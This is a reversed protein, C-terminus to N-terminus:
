FTASLRVFFDTYISGYNIRGRYFNAYYARGLDDQSSSWSYTSLGYNGYTSSTIGLEGAFASWEARSPVFWGRKVEETIKGWLDSSSASTSSSWSELVAKTNEYGTGFNESTSASTVYNADWTYGTGNKTGDIDTLAMVYFRNVETTRDLPTLVPATGYTGTYSAQSIYYDKLTSTDEVKTVTYTGYSNGGWYESSSTKGVATDAYTFGDVTGDSDTDVYYGIYAETKSITEIDGAGLTYPNAETGDGGTIIVNSNLHFVPRFGNTRVDGYSSGDSNVQCLTNSSTKGNTMLDPLSLFTYSSNSGGNRSALWVFRSSQYLGLANIQTQDTTYNTDTAKFVNNWGYTSLYTYSSNTYMGSSDAPSVPNSGVSRASDAIGKTDLYSEAKENLTTVARNYSAAAKLANEDMEGDGSYSFDSASVTTDSTGLQVTAVSNASIIQLGNTEDNYLVRCKINGSASPYYVYPSKEYDETASSDVTLKSSALVKEM